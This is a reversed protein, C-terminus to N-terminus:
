GVEKISEETLGAIFGMAMSRTKEGSDMLIVAMKGSTNGKDMKKATKTFAKM